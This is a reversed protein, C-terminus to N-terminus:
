TIYFVELRGIVNCKQSLYLDLYIYIYWCLLISVVEPNQKRSLEVYFKSSIGSLEAIFPVHKKLVLSFYLCVSTTLLLQCFAKWMLILILPLQCM